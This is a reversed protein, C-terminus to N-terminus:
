AAIIRIIRDCYPECDIEDDHGHNTKNTQEVVVVSDDFQYTFLSYCNRGFCCIILCNVVILICLEGDCDGEIYQNEISSKKKYRGIQQVVCIIQTVFELFELLVVIPGVFLNIRISNLCSLCPIVQLLSEMTTAQVSNVVPQKHPWIINCCVNVWCTTARLVAEISRFGAVAAPYVPLIAHAVYIGDLPSKDVQNQTENPRANNQGTQTAYRNIALSLASTRQFIADQRPLSSQAQKRRDNNTGYYLTNQIGLLASLFTSMVQLSM